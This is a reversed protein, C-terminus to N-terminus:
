LKFFMNTHSFYDNGYMLITYTTQFRYYTGVQSNSALHAAGVDLGVDSVVALGVAAGVDLSISAGM